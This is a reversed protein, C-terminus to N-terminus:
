EMNMYLSGINMKTIGMGYIDHVKTRYELSRKQAELAKNFMKKAEYIVGLNTYSQALKFYDGTNIYYKIARNFISIASDNKHQRGYIVGILKETQISEDENELKNFTFRADYYYKLASTYDGKHDYMLGLNLKVNAASLEDHRSEHYKLAETYFIEASDFDEKMLYANAIVELSKAWLTSKGKKAFLKNTIRFHELAKEKEGQWLLSEGYWNHGMALGKNYNLQKSLDIMKQAYVKASDIQIRLYLRTIKEYTNVLNTDKPSSYTLQVLSDIKQQNQSFSLVSFGSALIMSLVIKKLMM